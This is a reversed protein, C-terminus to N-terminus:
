EPPVTSSVAVQSEASTCSICSPTFAGGRGEGLPPLSIVPHSSHLIFLSSDGHMHFMFVNYITCPVNYITFRVNYM